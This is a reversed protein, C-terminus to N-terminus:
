RHDCKTCRILIMSLATTVHEPLIKSYDFLYGYLKIGTEVLRKHTWPEKGSCRHCGSKCRIHSDITTEWLYTCKRCRVIIRSHSSKIDELKVNSYDYLLELAGKIAKLFRQPTWPARKSKCEKCGKCLLHCAVTQYWSYSCHKCVILIKSRMNKIDEPKLGSYDFADYGHKAYARELFTILTIAPLNHGIKVKKSKKPKKPKDVTKKSEEETFDLDGTVAPKFLSLSLKMESSLIIALTNTKIEGSDFKSLM